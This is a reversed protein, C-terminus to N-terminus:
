ASVATGVASLLVSVFMNTQTNKCNPPFILKLRQMCKDKHRYIFLIAIQNCSHNSHTLTLHHRSCPPSLIARHRPARHCKANQNVEWSGTIHGRYRCYTWMLLEYEDTNDSGEEKWTSEDFQWSATILTRVWKLDVHRGRPCVRPSTSVQSAKSFRSLPVTWGLIWM